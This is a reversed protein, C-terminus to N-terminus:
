KFELFLFLHIKVSLYAGNAFSYIGWAQGRSWTGNDPYGQVTGKKKSSSVPLQTINFLNDLPGQGIVLILYTYLSLHSPTSDLRIYIKM